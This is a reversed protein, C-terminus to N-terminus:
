GVVLGRGMVDRVGKVERSRVSTLEIMQLYIIKKNACPAM